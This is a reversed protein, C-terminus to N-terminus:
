ASVGEMAWLSVNGKFSLGTERFWAAVRGLKRRGEAESAVLRGFGLPRKTRGSIVCVLQGSGNDPPYVMVITGNPNPKITPGAGDHIIRRALYADVVARDIEVDIFHMNNPDIAVGVWMLRGNSM